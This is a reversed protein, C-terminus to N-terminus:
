PLCCRDTFDIAGRARRAADSLASDAIASSSRTNARQTFSGTFADTRIGAQVKRCRTYLYM